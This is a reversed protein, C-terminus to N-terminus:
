TQCILYNRYFLLHFNKGGSFKAITDSTSYVFEVKKVIIAQHGNKEFLSWSEEFEVSPPNLIATIGDLELKMAATPPPGSSGSALLNTWNPIDVCNTLYEGFKKRLSFCIGVDQAATPDKKAVFVGSGGATGSVFVGKVVPTGPEYGGFFIYSNSDLYGFM